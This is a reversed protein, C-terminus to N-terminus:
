RVVNCRHTLGFFVVVSIHSYFHLNIYLMVNKGRVHM